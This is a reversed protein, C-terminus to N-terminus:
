RVRASATPSAGRKSDHGRAAGVREGVVIEVRRRHDDEVVHRHEAVRRARKRPEDLAAAPQEDDGALAAAHGARGVTRGPTGPLATSRM